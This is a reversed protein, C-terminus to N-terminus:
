ALLMQMSHLTRNFPNFVLGLIELTVVGLLAQDDNEGLIIPTHGEGEQLSIFCESVYRQISTGDALTFSMKRKPRLDIKKWVSEPLLSYTAGSDVLFDVSEQKGQPGTVMGPIVTIGM